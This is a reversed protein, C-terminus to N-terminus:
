VSLKQIPMPVILITSQLNLGIASDLVSHYSSTLISCVLILDFTTMYTSPLSLIAAIPNHWEVIGELFFGSTLQVNSLQHVIGVTLAKPIWMSKQVLTMSKRRLDRDTTSCTLHELTQGNRFLTPSRYYSTRAGFSEGPNAM